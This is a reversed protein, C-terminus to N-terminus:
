ARGARSALRGVHQLWHRLIACSPLLNAQSPSFKIAFALSQAANQEFKLGEATTSALSPSSRRLLSGTM